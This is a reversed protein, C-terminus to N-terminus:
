ARLKFQYRGDGGLNPEFSGAVEYYEYSVNVRIFEAPHTRLAGLTFEDGIHTSEHGFQFKAGLHASSWFATNDALGWQAKVLGAFRYDTNLIPISPDKSLDEIMHFSLPLWIGFGFHGAGVGVPSETGRSSSFGVIPIETGVSIDWVLSSGDTVAFPFSDARAPFLATTQAARPEALVPDFYGHNELAWVDQASAGQPVTLTRSLTVAVVLRRSYCDLCIWWIIEDDEPTALRWM